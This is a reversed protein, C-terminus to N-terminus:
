RSGSSRTRCLRVGLSVGIGERKARQGTSVPAVGSSSYLMCCLYQSWPKDTATSLIMRGAKRARLEQPEPPFALFAETKGEAFLEM